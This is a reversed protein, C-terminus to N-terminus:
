RRIEKKMDTWCRVIRFGAAEYINRAPNTEGTFLSMFEAGMTKLESCLASFLAKAAGRGRYDSHIGIGAFYGRGSPQVHLPGTFGCARDGDEVILVPDCPGGARDGASGARGPAFNATVIRRWDESGLDDFLEDLGTHRDPDFRTIRLGESALRDVIVRIDPPYVYEALPLYYSNQYAFDRYGRNKLFIYGDGAVDVGPANPHDHGPTGPIIWTLAVPNFFVIEYRNVIGPRGPAIGAGDAADAAALLADELAALLRSGVGQRRRDQAVMVATVYAQEAGPRVTGSAFGVVRDDDAAVLSVPQYGDGAVRFLRDIEDPRFRRYLPGGSEDCCANWLTAVSAADDAALPRISAGTM